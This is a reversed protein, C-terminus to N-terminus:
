CRGVLSSRRWIHGFNKNLDGFEVGSACKEEPIKSRPNLPNPDRCPDINTAHFPSSNTELSKHSLPDPSFTPPPPSPSIPPPPLPPQHLHIPAPTV